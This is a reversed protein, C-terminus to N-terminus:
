NNNIPRLDKNEKPRSSNKENPNDVIIIPEDDDSLCIIV